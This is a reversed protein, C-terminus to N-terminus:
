PAGGPTSPAASAELIECTFEAGGGSRNAAAVRGGFLEVYSRVVYLGLGFGPNAAYPSPAGQRYREFLSQGEADGIGPGRDRVSLTLGGAPNRELAVEVEGETPSYRVANELLNMVVEMLDEMNGAAHPLGPEVRASIRVRRSEAIPRVAAVANELTAALDVAGIEVRGTADELRSIKLIKTALRSLQEGSAHIGRVYEEQRADLSGVIGDMLNRASWSISTIPTRLDHAVRSLFDTKLRDIEDLRRRLFAEEAVQGLLFLRELVTGSERCASRLLELDPEIYRRESTKPGLLALGYLEAGASIPQALRFGLESWEAPYDLQELEPRSTASPAALLSGSSDARRTADELLRAASEAPLDGAVFVDEGLRAVVCLKTPRFCAALFIRLIRVVDQGGTAAEIKRRFGQMAREYSYQIKFVTRDVWRGLLNRTPLFLAVSVAAAAAPLYPALAPHAPVIRRGILVTIVTYVITLIAALVGYILSRRIIVDIDLFQHRVVALAFGLPVVVAVVRAATLPVIEPFGLARPLVYLFVFPTAGSTIGWWLWKMQQKERELEARRTNQYLLGFGLGVVTILFVDGAREALQFAPWAEPRPSEFYGLMAWAQGAVLAAAGLYLLPLVWPRERVVARERPFVLTMHVFLTPVLALSASRLVPLFANPWLPPPPHYIGGVGIAVGYFLTAGLFPWVSDRDARPAFVIFCIAVFFCASVLSVTRQVGSIGSEIVTERLPEGPLSFRTGPRLSGALFEIEEPSGASGGPWAVPYDLADLPVSEPLSGVRNQGELGWLVAVTALACLVFAIARKLVARM